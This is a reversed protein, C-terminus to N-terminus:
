TTWIFSPSRFEMKEWFNWVPARPRLPLPARGWCQIIRYESSWNMAQIWKPRSSELECSSYFLTFVQSTISGSTFRYPENRANYAQLYCDYYIFLSESLFNLANVIKDRQRCVHAIWRLPFSHTVSCLQCVCLSHLAEKCSCKRWHAISWVLDFHIFVFEKENAYSAIKGDAM